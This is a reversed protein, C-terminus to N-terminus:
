SSIGVGPFWSTEGSVKLSSFSTLSRRLILSSFVNSVFLLSLEESKSVEIIFFIQSEYQYVVKLVLVVEYNKEGKINAKIDVSIDIDPKVNNNNFIEPAHPNEFSLDKLYQTGIGIPHEKQDNIKNM